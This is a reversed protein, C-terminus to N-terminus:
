PKVSACIAYARMFWKGSSTGRRGTALWSARNSGKRRRPVSRPLRQQGGTAHVSAGGGLVDLGAPCNVKFDKGAGTLDPSQASVVKYNSIGPAGPVGKQNWVLRKTGARCFENHNVVRLVLDRGYCAHINGEPSPIAAVAVGGCAVVLAILAIITAPSPRSM